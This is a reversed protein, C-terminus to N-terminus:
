GGLKADLLAKFRPNPHSVLSADRESPVAPGTDGGNLPVPNNARLSSTGTTLGPDLSSGRVAFSRTRNPSGTSGSSVPNDASHAEAQGKTAALRLPRDVAPPIGVPSSVPQLERLEIIRERGDALRIRCTNEDEDFALLEIGEKQRGQELWFSKGSQLDEIRAYDRKGIRFVGNLAFAREGDNRTRMQLSEEASFGPPLFPSRNVLSEGAHLSGMVSLVATLAIRGMM